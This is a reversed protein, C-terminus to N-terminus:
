SAGQNQLIESLLDKESTAPLLVRFTTGGGLQSEAQIMGGHQAVVWHAIALGLGAGGTERSRDKSVRYFRDFIHPLDEPPIGVGTDKVIIQARCTGPDAAAMLCVDISGGAPTAKIANDLLISLVRRLAETDGLTMASADCAVKLQVNKSYALVQMDDCAATVVSRLDVPELYLGNSRADARTLTLLDEVLQSMRETQALVSAWARDHEALTRTRTRILEATTRIIALPTRLEHSADATFQTVRRFASELGALMENLVESLRDLEDGAVTFPLRESLNQSTIRQATSTIRAVPRLVRGSMWYGTASAILLLLPTGLVTTWIFDRQMEEFEDLPLGIQVTGVEVPASLVRMPKGDVRVTRIAGRAPLDKHSPMRSPWTNTNPSQYIWSGTDDAIRLYASGASVIADENLEERLHTVGGGVAEEKVYTRVTALLARLEKDVTVRISHRLTVFVLVGACAFTAALLAAYWATLRFRISHSNFRHM